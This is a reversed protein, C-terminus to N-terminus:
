KVIEKTTLAEAVINVMKSVTNMETMLLYEDPVEIEFAEELAVVIRIFTLSDMGLKSLETDVQESRIEDNVVNENIIEIIKEQITAM